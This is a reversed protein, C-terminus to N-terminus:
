LPFFLLAYGLRFSPPDVMRFILSVKITSTAIQTKVLMGEVTCTCAEEGVVLLRFPSVIKLVLLPQATPSPPMIRCKSPLEHLMTGDAVLMSRNLTEKPGRFAGM